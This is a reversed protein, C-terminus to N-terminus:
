QYANRAEVLGHLTATPCGSSSAAFKFLGGTGHQCAGAQLWRRRSPPARENAIVVLVIKKPWSM